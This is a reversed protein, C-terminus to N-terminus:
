SMYIATALTLFCHGIMQMFPYDFLLVTLVIFLTRRFMFILPFIWIHRQKQPSDLTAKVTLGEYLTGYKQITEETELTERNKHLVKAFLIPLLNLVILTIISIAM